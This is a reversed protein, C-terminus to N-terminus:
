ICKLVVCTANVPNKIVPSKIVPLAKSIGVHM